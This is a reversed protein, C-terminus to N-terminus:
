IGIQQSMKAHRVNMSATATQLLDPQVIQAIPPQLVYKQAASPSKTTIMPHTPVQNVFNYVDGIRVRLHNTDEKQVNWVNIKARVTTQKVQRANKACQNVRKTKINDVPVTRVNKVTSTITIYM